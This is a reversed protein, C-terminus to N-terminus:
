RSPGSVERPWGERLRLHSRPPTGHISVTIADYRTGLDHGVELLAVGESSEERLVASTRGPGGGGRAAVTAIYESEGRCASSPFEPPLEVLDQRREIATLRVVHQMLIRKHIEEALGPHQTFRSKLRSFCLLFHEQLQGPKSYCCKKYHEEFSAASSTEKSGIFSTLTVNQENRGETCLKRFFTNKM